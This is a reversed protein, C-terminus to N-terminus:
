QKNGLMTLTGQPRASEMQCSYTSSVVLQASQACSMGSEHAAAKGGSYLRDIQARHAHSLTSQSHQRHSLFLFRESGNVCSGCGHLDLRARFRRASGIAAAARRRHNRLLQACRRM